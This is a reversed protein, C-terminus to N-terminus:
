QNQYSEDAAEGPEAVGLQGGHDGDGSRGVGVRVGCEALEYGPDDAPVEDEFVGAGVHGHADAEGGMHDIKEIPEAQMRRHTPYGGGIEGVSQCVQLAVDEIIGAPVETEIDRCKEDHEQEGYDEDTANLLRGAGVVDHDRDLEDGDDDKDGGCEAVQVGGVPM